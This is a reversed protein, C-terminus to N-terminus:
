AAPTPKKERLVKGAGSRKALAREALADATVEKPEDQLRWSSRSLLREQIAHFQFTDISGRCYKLHLTLHVDDVGSLSNRDAKGVDNANHYVKSHFVIFGKSSWHKKRSMTRSLMRRSPSLDMLPDILSRHRKGRIWVAVKFPLELIKLFLMQMYFPNIAWSQIVYVIDTALNRERNVDSGWVQNTTVYLITEEGIQGILRLFDASGTDAKAFKAWQSNDKGSIQKEDEAIVTYEMIHYDSFRKPDDGNEEEGDSQRDKDKIFLMSPDYDMAAKGNIQSVFAKAYYYVYNDRMLAWRADIYGQLITLFSIPKSVHNDYKLKVYPEFPSGKAILRQAEAKSDIAGAEFDKRLVDEVSNFPVTKMALCSFRVRDRAKKELWKTKVNVIAAMLTTKGSRVAGNIYIIWRLKQGIYNESRAEKAKLIRVYIWEIIWPIVLLGAVVIVAILWPAM